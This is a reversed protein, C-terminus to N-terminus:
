RLSIIHPELCAFLVSTYYGLLAPCDTFRVYYNREAGESATRISDDILLVCHHDRHISWAYMDEGSTFLYGRCAELLFCAM